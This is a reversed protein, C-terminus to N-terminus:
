KNLKSKNFIIVWKHSNLLTLVYTDGLRTGLGSFM